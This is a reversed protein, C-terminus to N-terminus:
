AERYLTPQFSALRLSPSGNPACQLFQPSFSDQSRRCYSRAGLLHQIFKLSRLLHFRCFNLMFPSPHTFVFCVNLVLKERDDMSMSGHDAMYRARNEPTKGQSQTFPGSSLHKEISPLCLYLRLVPKPRRLHNLTSHSKGQPM